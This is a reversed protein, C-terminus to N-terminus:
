ASISNNQDKLFHALITMRNDHVEHFILAIRALTFYNSKILIEKLSRQILGM